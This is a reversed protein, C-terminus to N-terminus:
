NIPNSELNSRGSSEKDARVREEDGGTLEVIGLNLIRILALVAGFGVVVGALM